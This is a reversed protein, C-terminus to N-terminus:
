PCQGQSSEDCIEEEILEWTGRQICMEATLKGRESMHELVKRRVRFHPRLSVEKLSSACSRLATKDVYLPVRANCANPAGQPITNM